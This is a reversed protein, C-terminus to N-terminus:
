EFVPVRLPRDAWGPRHAREYCWERFARQLVFFRLREGVEGLMVGGFYGALFARVVADTSGGGAVVDGLYGISRVMGAVDRLRSEKKVGGSGDGLHPEGEFDIFQYGGECGHLIQGLHLDGHIVGSEARPVVLRRPFGEAMEVWRLLVARAPAKSSMSQVAVRISQALEEPLLGVEGLIEPAELASMAAHLERLSKGLTVWDFDEVAPWGETVFGDWLSAGRVWRQIMGLGVRRDEHVSVLAGGFGPVWRCGSLGGLLRAERGEGEVPERYVKLFWEAQGSVRFGRHTSGTSLAQWRIEREDFSGGSLVVGDGGGIRESELLGRLASPIARMM